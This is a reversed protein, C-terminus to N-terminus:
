KIAEALKKFLSEEFKYASLFAMTADSFGTKEQVIAKAEDLTMASEMEPPLKGSIIMKSTHEHYIGSWQFHPRDPFSQWDGGWEFGIKKGIEGCQEFFSLDSYEQGKVINCIDFALVVAHFSPTRTKATGAEYCLEQYEKDRVTGVVLVNLGAAECRKLFLKCNKMVDPRLKNVDRSNLM